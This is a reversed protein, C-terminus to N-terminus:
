IARNLCIKFPSITQAPNSGSVERAHTSQGHALWKVVVVAWLNKFKRFILCLISLLYFEISAWAM